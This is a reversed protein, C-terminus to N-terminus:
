PKGPYLVRELVPLTCYVKPKSMPNPTLADVLKETAREMKELPEEVDRRVIVVGSVKDEHLRGEVVWWHFASEYSLPKSGLAKEIDASRKADEAGLRVFVQGCHGTWAQPEKTNKVMFRGDLRSRLRLRERQPDDSAHFLVARRYNRALVWVDSEDRALIGYAGGIADKTSTLEIKITTWARDGIDFEGKRELVDSVDAEYAASDLPVFDTKVDVPLCKGRPAPCHEVAVSKQLTVFLSGDKAISAASVNAPADPFVREFGAASVRFLGESCRLVVSADFSPVLSCSPSKTGEVVTPADGPKWTSPFVAARPAEYSGFGLVVLDGKADVALGTVIPIKAVPPPAAEGKDDLWRLENMKPDFNAGLLRGRWRVVHRADIATTAAIKRERLTFTKRKGGFGSLLLPGPEGLEGHVFYIDMSPELFGVFTDDDPYLPALAAADVLPELAGNSKAEYPMSGSVVVIRGDFTSFLRAESSGEGVAVLSKDIPKAPGADTSSATAVSGDAAADTGADVAAGGKSSSKCGECGALFVAFIAAARLSM